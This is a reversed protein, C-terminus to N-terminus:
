RTYIKWQEAIARNIEPTVNFAMPLDHLNLYLTPDKQTQLDPIMYMKQGNNLTIISITRMKPDDTIESPANYLDVLYKAFVSAPLLITSHFAEKRSREEYAVPIRNRNFFLEYNIMLKKPDVLTYQKVFNPKHQEQM